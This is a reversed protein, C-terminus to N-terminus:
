SSPKDVFLGPVKKAEVPQPMDERWVLDGPELKGSLAQERLQEATYPGRRVGDKTFFWNSV